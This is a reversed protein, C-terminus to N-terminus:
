SESGTWAWYLVSRASDPSQQYTYNQGEAHVRGANPNELIRNRQSMEPNLQLVNLERLKRKVEQLAPNHELTPNDALKKWKEAISLKPAETPTQKAIEPASAEPQMPTGGTSILSPVERAVISFSPFSREAAFIHEAYHRISRAEPESTAEVRFDNEQDFHTYEAAGYEAYTNSVKKLGFASYEDDPAPGFDRVATNKSQDAEELEIQIGNGLSIWRSLPKDENSPHHMDREQNRYQSDMIIPRPNESPGVPPGAKHPEFGLAVRPMFPLIDTQRECGSGPFNPEEYGQQVQSPPAPVLSSRNSHKNREEAMSWKCCNSLVGGEYFTGIFTKPHSSLDGSLSGPKSGVGQADSTQETPVDDYLEVEFGLDPELYSRPVQFNGRSLAPPEPNVRVFGFRGSHRKEEEYLPVSSGMYRAESPGPETNILNSPPAKTVPEVRRKERGSADWDDVDISELDSYDVIPRRIQDPHDQIKARSAPGVISTFRRVGPEVHREPRAEDSRLTSGRGTVHRKGGIQVTTRASKEEPKLNRQPSKRLYEIRERREGESDSSIVIPTPSRKQLPPPSPTRRRRRPRERTEKQSGSDTLATSSRPENPTVGKVSSVPSAGSPLFPNAFPNLNPPSDAMPAILSSDPVLPKPSAASTPNARPSSPQIAGLRSLALKAFSDQLRAQKIQQQSQSSLPKSPEGTKPTQQASTERSTTSIDRFSEGQEPPFTRSADAVGVDGLNPSIQGFPPKSWGSLEQPAGTPSYATESTSTESTPIPSTVSVPGSSSKGPPPLPPLTPWSEAWSPTPPELDRVTDRVLPTDRARPSSARKTRGGELRFANRIETARNEAAKVISGRKMTRAPATMPINPILSTDPATMPENPILSADTALLVERLSPPPSDVVPRLQLLTSPSYMFQPKLSTDSGILTQSSEQARELRPSIAPPRREGVHRVSPLRRDEEFLDAINDFLPPEHFTPASM